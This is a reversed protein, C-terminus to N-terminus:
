NLVVRKAEISETIYDFDYVERCTEVIYKTDSIHEAIFESFEESNDEEYAEHQNSWEKYRFPAEVVAGNKKILFLRVVTCSAGLSNGFSKDISFLDEISLKKTDLSEVLRSVAVSGSFCNLFPIVEREIRNKVGLTAPTSLNLIEIDSIGNGQFKNLIQHQHKAGVIDLKKIAQM